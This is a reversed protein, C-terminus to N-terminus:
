FTAVSKKILPTLMTENGTFLPGDSNTNEPSYQSSIRKIYHDEDAFGAIGLSIDFRENMLGLDELYYRMTENIFISGKDPLRYNLIVSKETLYMKCAGTSSRKLFFLFGWVRSIDVQFMKIIYKRATTHCMYMSCTSSRDLYHCFWENYDDNKRFVPTHIELGNELDKTLEESTKYAGEM